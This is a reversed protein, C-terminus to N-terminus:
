KLGTQKVTRTERNYYYEMLLLNNRRDEHTIIPKVGNRIMFLTSEVQQLTKYPNSIYRLDEM